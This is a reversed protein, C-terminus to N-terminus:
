PATNRSDLWHNLEQPSTFFLITGNATVRLRAPYFMAYQINEARLRRKADQFKARLKQVESSFDAYISIKSAQYQLTSKERAMRLISDRDIANLVRALLPRPPAGPPPPKAPVRHAREIAFAGSLKNRDFNSLLWTTVFEEPTTGEAREPFGVMRLNNRRLRNELDDTKALCSQVDKGLNQLTQQVPACADELESLRQETATTRERLRQFDQRIISLDLKIEDTKANILTSCVEKTSKIEAIVDLLTPSQQEQEKSAEPVSEPGARQDGDQGKKSDRSFKELRAATESTRKQAKNQGMLNRQPLVEWHKHHPDTNTRQPIKIDPYEPGPLPARGFHSKECPTAPWEGFLTM